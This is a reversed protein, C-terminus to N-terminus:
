HAILENIPAPLPAVKSGSSSPAEAAPKPPAAAAPPPALEDLDIIEEQGSTKM